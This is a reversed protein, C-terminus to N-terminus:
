GDGQEQSSFYKAVLYYAKAYLSSNGKTLVKLLDRKEAMYTKAFEPDYKTISETNHILDALKITQSDPLADATHALDIAKRAKRNGDEPQSVDTLDDVMAAVRYGFVNAIGEIQCITDEVVDHLLAAAIIREDDTVTAVIDAVALPHTVYPEGTYKRVQGEHAMSAFSKAQDIM